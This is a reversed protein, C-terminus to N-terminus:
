LFKGIQASFDDRMKSLCYKEIYELKNTEDVIIAKGGPVLEKDIRNGFNDYIYSFTFMNEDIPNEKLWEEAELDKFELEQGLIMKYFARTFYADILEREVLAKGIFRGVFKFYNLHDPNIYSKPNPQYTSGSSSKEFLAYDQNFIERSVLLFWERKLGGADYGQENTFSVQIRGELERLSRNM